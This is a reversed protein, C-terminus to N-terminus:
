TSQQSSGQFSPQRAPPMASADSKTTSTEIDGRQEVWMVAERRLKANTTISLKEKLRARYSDITKPSLRLKDAIQRTTLGWGMHEFVEIERESLGDVPSDYAVDKKGAYRMLIQSSLAKSLYVDGRLVRRIASIVERSAESKMLYGRAGAQLTRSAYLKEDYMSIVLIPLNPHQALVSKILTLGNEGDLSLDVIMLDPDAAALRELAVTGTPAEGCVTLDGEAEILAGLGDRTIPHDEVIYVSYTM